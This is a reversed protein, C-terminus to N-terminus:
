TAHNTGHKENWRKYVAVGDERPCKKMPLNREEMPKCFEDYFHEFQFYPRGDRYYSQYEERDVVFYTNKPSSFYLAGLCMPCPSALFYIDCDTLQETGLKRCAERIVLIEAHATPDSSQAVQNTGEAIIEDGKAVICSFPQGGKEVNDMALDIARQVLDMFSNRLQVLYFGAIVWLQPLPKSPGSTPNFGLKVARLCM